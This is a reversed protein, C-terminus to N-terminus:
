ATLRAIMARAAADAAAPPAGGEFAALFTRAIAKGLEVGMQDFSNIHWLVGQVFVKHEYAALLAGLTAPALEPLVITTSPANGPYDKEPQGPSAAGSTLAAAQALASALLIRQYPQPAARRRVLVFDAPVLLTGQHLLQHFSHQSNAGVNGFLVPATAYGVPNGDRDVRKGNSEMELQQLYDPLLDLRRAYPLVAHTQAGWFNTYWVGMLALLAPANRELPAELFHRDMAAAGSLLDAFAEPGLAVAISLGVASWVSYRGGVSEAMPLINATAVGFAAAAAVNNSVAILHRDLSGPLGAALWARAGEANTLTEITTFTKSIVIVLTTEPDCGALADGLDDPDVNAVFHVRPGDALPRLADVILRPGLDSGGIGIHLVDTIAKGTAGRWAGSRLDRAIAGVRSLTVRAEDVAAQAAPGHGQGRLAVHLVARQETANIPEGAFMRERWQPVARARALATLLGLTQETARHRSFDFTLGAADVTMRQVREPEAALLDTVRAGRLALQHAALARWEATETLTTM